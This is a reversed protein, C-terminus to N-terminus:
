LYNSLANKDADSLVEVGSIVSSSLPKDAIIMIEEEGEKGPLVNGEEFVRENFFLLVGQRGLVDTEESDKDKIDELSTKFGDPAIEAVQYLDFIEFDERISQSFAYGKAVVLMNKLPFVEYLMSSTSGEPFWGPPFSNFIDKALMPKIKDVREIFPLAYYLYKGGEVLKKQYDFYIPSSPIRGTDLIRKLVRTTTGYVAIARESFGQEIWGRVKDRSAELGVIDTIGKQFAESM